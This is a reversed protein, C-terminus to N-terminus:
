IFASIAAPKNLWMMMLPRGDTAKIDNNVKLLASHRFQCDSYYLHADSVSEWRKELPFCISAFSNEPNSTIVLVDDWIDGSSSAGAHSAPKCKHTPTRMKIHKQQEWDPKLQTPFPALHTLDVDLGPSIDSVRSRVRKVHNAINTIDLSKWMSPDILCSIRAPCPRSLSLRVQM